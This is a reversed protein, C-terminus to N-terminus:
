GKIALTLTRDILEDMTLQGEEDYWYLSWAIAGHILHRLVDSEVVTLGTQRAEELTEFWLKDFIERDKLILAQKEPSLARWEYVLVAVADGTKGHIFMLENSILARVKARPDIASSLATKLSVTMAAVVENMVGFLIEDKSKFHHFISGSLIGVETALARVTTRSYGKERFLRAAAALVRGKPSAPDTILGDAIMQRLLKGIMGHEM